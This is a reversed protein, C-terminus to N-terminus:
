PDFFQALHTAMPKQFKLDESLHFPFLPLMRSKTRLMFLTTTKLRPLSFVLNSISNSTHLSRSKIIHINRRDLEVSVWIQSAISLFGTRTPIPRLTSSMKVDRNPVREHVPSIGM